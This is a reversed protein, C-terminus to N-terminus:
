NVFGSRLEREDSPCVHPPCSHCGHLAPADTCSAARMPGGGGRTLRSALWSGYIIIISSSLHHHIILPAPPGPRAATDRLGRLHSAVAARQRRLRAAAQGGSVRASHAAPVLRPM